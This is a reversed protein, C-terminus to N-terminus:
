QPRLLQQTDRDYIYDPTEDTATVTWGFMRCFLSVFNDTARDYLAEVKRLQARLEDEAIKKGYLQTDGRYYEIEILM